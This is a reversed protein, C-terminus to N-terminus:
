SLCHTRVRGVIRKKEGSPHGTGARTRWHAVGVRERQHHEALRVFDFGDHQPTMGAHQENVAVMRSPRPQPQDAPELAVREGGDDGDGREGAGVVRILNLGPEAEPASSTM